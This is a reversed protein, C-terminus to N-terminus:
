HSTSTQTITVCVSPVEPEASALSESGPEYLISNVGSIAVQQNTNGALTNSADSPTSATNVMMLNSNLSVILCPGAAAVDPRALVQQVQEHPVLLMSSMGPTVPVAFASRNQTANEVSTLTATVIGAHKGEHQIFARMVARIVHKSAQHPARLGISAFPSKDPDTSSFCGCLRAVLSDPHWYSDLPHYQGHVDVTMVDVVFV